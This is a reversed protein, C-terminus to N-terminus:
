KFNQIQAWEFHWSLEYAAIIGLFNIKFGVKETGGGGRGEGGGGGWM